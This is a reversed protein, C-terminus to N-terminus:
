RGSRRVRVRRHHDAPRARAGGTPSAEGDEETKPSFQALVEAAFERLEPPLADLCSRDGDQLVDAVAGFLLTLQEVSERPQAVTLIRAIEPWDDRRRSHAVARLLTICHPLRQEVDLEELAKVFQKLVENRRRSDRDQATVEILMRVAEVRDAWIAGPIEIAPDLHHWAADPAQSLPRPFSRRPLPGPPLWERGSPAELVATLDRIAAETQGLQAYCAGRRLLAGRLWGPHINARKVAATFDSIAAQPQSLQVYCQGRCVLAVCVLYTPAGPYEIVAGFQRISARYDGRRMHYFGLDMYASGIDGASANPLKTAAAFDAIAAGDDNMAVHVNGRATLAQALHRVDVGPLDLVATFDRIAAAQQGRRAHLRGRSLLAMAIDNATAGPVQTIATYDAIAADADGRRDHCRGRGVLAPAIHNATAGPLQTIATYDAIAADTDSLEEHSWARVGLAYAIADTSALSSEVIATTDLIAANCQGDILYAFARCVTACVVMRPRAGPLDLVATFDRIAASIEGRAQYCEGRDLFALTRADADAEPSDIVTSLDRIAAELDGQKLCCGGRHALATARMAGPVAPRKIVENYDDLAAAHDGQRQYSLGRNIMARAWLYPTARPSRAVEDFYQRAATLEGSQLLVGGCNVRARMDEPNHQLAEQFTRVAEDTHELTWSDLEGFAAAEYTRRDTAAVDRFEAVAQAAERMDGCRLWCVIALDQAVHEHASAVLAAAYYEAMEARQRVTLGDANAASAVLSQLATIRQEADFWIKLFEVFVEIRRRNPRLYRLQYWTCFLQDPVTYYATRGKGGGRVEIMQSEKLRQLQTTVKNLDLRTARALQRPTATGGARMLADLIKSQQPPLCELVDKLLPTLEDVLQRLTQVVPQVVGASLVEYLMVILRPNGGTLRTIARIRSRHRQYAEQFPDNHDYAARRLMLDRVQQDDLRELPVPCFYNFFAEDYTKLAPFLHVATGIIMLFPDTMLLRRLTAQTHRDLGRQFVMDLNEILLILRKHQEDAIQRLGAVALGQSREDDAEAEVRGLWESASPIGEEALIQLATALLDRLSAIAPLEEPFRVPLWAKSLAPDERLAHCLMLVLTTKGAGRPGTILYSTLSRAEAQVRLANQLYELTHQRGAFTARLEEAAMEQPMYKHAVLVM